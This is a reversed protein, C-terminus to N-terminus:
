SYSIGKIKGTRTRPVRVEIGQAALAMVLAGMTKVTTAAHGIADQLQRQVRPKLTDDFVEVQGRSQSRQGVDWSSAVPTLMYRQELQRIISQSRYHDYSDSVVKGTVINIRSAVIHIHPHEQDTHRVVLYQNEDPDFGM